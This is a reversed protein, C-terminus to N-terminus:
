RFPPFVGLDGDDPFLREMADATRTFTTCMAPLWHDASTVFARLRSVTMRRIDTINWSSQADMEADVEPGRALRDALYQPWIAWTKGLVWQGCADARVRAFITDSTLDPLVGVLTRRFVSEFRKVVTVPVRYCQWSTPWLMRPRVMDLLPNGYGAFEFDVLMAAHGDYLVNHPGLDRHLFTADPYASLRATM